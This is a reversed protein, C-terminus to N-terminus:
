YVQQVASLAVPSMGGGLDLTPGSTGGMVVSTVPVVAYPTVKVTNASSASTANVSYSYTGASQATGGLSQGNWNFNQNGAGM